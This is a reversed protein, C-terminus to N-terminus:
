GALPAYSVLLRRGAPTEEELECPQTQAIVAFCRTQDETGGRGDRGSAALIDELPTGPRCLAESLDRLRWFAANCYSLRGGADFVGVGVRLLQPQAAATGPSLETPASIGSM